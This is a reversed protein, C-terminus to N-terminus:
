HRSIVQKFDKTLLDEVKHIGPATLPQVLRCPIHAPLGMETTEMALSTVLRVIDTGELAMEEMTSQNLIQKCDVKNPQVSSDSVCSRTPWVMFSHRM